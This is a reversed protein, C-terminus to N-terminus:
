KEKYIRAILYEKFGNDGNFFRVFLGNNKDVVKDTAALEEAEKIINFAEEDTINNNNAKILQNTYEKAKEEYKSDIPYFIGVNYSIDNDVNGTYEVPQVYFVIDEYLPYYYINNQPSLNEDYVPVELGNDMIQTNFKAVSTKVSEEDLYVISDIKAQQKESIKNLIFDTVFYGIAYCVIIVVCTIIVLFVKKKM